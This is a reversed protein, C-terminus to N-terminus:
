RGTAMNVAATDTHFFRTTSRCAPTGPLKLTRRNNAISSSRIGQGHQSVIISTILSNDHSTCNTPASFCRPKLQESEALANPSYSCLRRTVCVQKLFHRSFNCIVYSSSSNVAESCFQYQRLLLVPEWPVENITDNSSVKGEIIIQGRPEDINM